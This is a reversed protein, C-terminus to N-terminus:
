YGSGGGKPVSPSPGNGTVVFSVFTAVGTNTHDNNALYVELEHTGTPLNRYTITPAVSPSYKGQSGLKVAERGNAGSYKPYDYKGHDLSFHLHGEGQRAPKGVKNPALRFNELKVEAVVTPGVRSAEQPTVFRVKAGPARVPAGAGGAPSSGDSSGCASVGAPAALGVLVAAIARLRM